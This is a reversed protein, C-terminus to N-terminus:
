DLQLNPSDKMSFSMKVCASKQGSCRRGTLRGLWEWHSTQMNQKHRQVLAVMVPGQSGSHIILPSLFHISKTVTSGKWKLGPTPKWSPFFSFSNIGQRIQFLSGYCLSGSCPARLFAASYAIRPQLKLWCRMCIPELRPSLEDCILNHRRRRTVGGRLRYTSNVHRELPHCSLCLPKRQLPGWWLAMLKLLSSAFYYNEDSLRFSNGNREPELLHSLVPNLPPPKIWEGEAQSYIFWWAWLRM